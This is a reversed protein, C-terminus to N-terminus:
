DAPQVPGTQKLCRATGPDPGSLSTMLMVMSAIESRCTIEM